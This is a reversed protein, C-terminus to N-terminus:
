HETNYPHAFTRDNLTHEQNIPGGAPGSLEHKESQGLYQKGLWILMPVNGEQAKKFQMRRLSIIGDVSLKKYVVAFTEGYQVKIMRELTDESINLWKSIEEKTANIQCGFEFKQWDIVKKPRGTPRGTRKYAM